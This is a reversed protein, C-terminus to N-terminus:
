RRQPQPTNVSSRKPHDRLVARVHRSFPEALGLVLGLASVQRCRAGSLPREHETGADWAVATTLRQTDCVHHTRDRRLSEQELKVNVTMSGPLVGLRKMFRSRGFSGAFSM